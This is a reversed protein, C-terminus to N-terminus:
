ITFPFSLSRMPMLNFLRMIVAKSSPISACRPSSVIILFPHRVSQWNLIGVSTTLKEIFKTM